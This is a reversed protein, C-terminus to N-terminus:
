DAWREANLMLGQVNSGRARRVAGQGKGKVRVRGKMRVKVKGKVRVKVKGKM